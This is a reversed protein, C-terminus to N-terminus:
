AIQRHKILLLTIIPVFCPRNSLPFSELSGGLCDVTLSHRARGRCREQFTFEAKPILFSRRLVQPQSTSGVRGLCCTRHLWSTTDGLFKTHPVHPRDKRANESVASYFSRGTCLITDQVQRNLKLSWRLTTSSNVFPHIM